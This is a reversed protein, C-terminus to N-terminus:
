EKKRLFEGLNITLMPVIFTKEPNINVLLEFGVSMFKFPIYWISGRLPLSVTEFEKSNYRNGLFEDYVLATRRLGWVMGIGGQYEFRYNNEDYFIGFLLNIQNFYEQPPPNLNELERNYNYAVSYIYRNSTLNLDIGQVYMGEFVGTGVKLGWSYGLASSQGFASIALLSLSLSVSFKKLNKMTQGYKNTDIDGNPPLLPLENYPKQRDFNEMKLHESKEFLHVFCM